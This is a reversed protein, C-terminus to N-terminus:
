VEFLSARKGAVLRFLGLAAFTILMLGAALACAMGWYGHDALGLISAAAVNRGPSVVFIVASLTNVSKIFAYMFASVFTYKLLPLVIHWFTRGSGAGLAAAAEEISPDIQQISSMATRYGFPLNRVAMILIIIVATGTMLLPPNNFALVYGIGVFTGPLAAPLLALFDLFRRGIFKKRYLVYGGLTSLVAVFLAAASAFRVSNWLEQGRFITYDFNAVTLSWDIGWVKTFAGLFITIYVLLVITSMVACIAFLGYVVPRSVPPRDLASLKGTVTVYSRRSIVWRQLLFFLFSPIFLVTALVAAMTMDYRGMIQMYAETALVSFRGGILMPNGFDALVFNAVLLAAGAVGPLTLPFTVTRFLRFGSAGLGRAAQELTPPIRKLVGAIILYAVPFFALTQAFWLGHWGYPDLRLGLLAHTILGRRGFLLLFALGTVFPPSVLPLIGIFRFFVALPMRPIRTTAFAFIYGIATATLTSVLVMWMTNRTVMLFRPERVSQVWDQINPLLVVRLLPFLVLVVLSAAILVVITLLLPERAIRQLDALHRRLLGLGSWVM